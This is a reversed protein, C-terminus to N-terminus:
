LVATLVSTQGGTATAHLLSVNNNNKVKVAKLLEDARLSQLLVPVNGSQYAAAQFVTDGQQNKIMMTEFRKNEPLLKLINDLCYPYPALEHLVTSGKNNEVKLM